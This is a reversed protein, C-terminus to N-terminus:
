PRGLVPAGTFDPGRALFDTVRRGAALEECADQPLDRGLATYLSDRHIDFCSQVLVAYGAAAALMVRYAVAMGAVAVVAAWWAFVTWVAFALSVLWLQAAQDLRARATGVDARVQDPLVLWLRPWCVAAELGYRHRPRSEAARLLDGLSTPTRDDRAAPVTARRADLRAYEAREAASLSDTRLALERWRAAARDIRRSRLRVLARRAPAAWKPWYGELTRLVPLSLSGVLRASGAVVLLALLILAVQAVATPQNFAHRWREDLKAWGSRTGTFGGHAWVWALVGGGWFVLAPSLLLAAWKDAVKGGVGSWVAGLV